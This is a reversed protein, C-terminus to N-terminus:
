SNPVYFLGSALSAGVLCVAYVLTQKTRAALIKTRGHNTHQTEFALEFTRAPAM